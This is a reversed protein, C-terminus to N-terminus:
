KATVGETQYSSKIAHDLIKVPNCGLSTALKDLDIRETQPSTFLDSPMAESEDSDSDVIIDGM